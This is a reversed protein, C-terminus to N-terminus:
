PTDCYRQEVPSVIKLTKKPNQRANKTHLSGNEYLLFKNREFQKKKKKSFIGPSLQYVAIKIWGRNWKLPSLLPQYFFLSYLLWKELWIKWSIVSLIHFIIQLFKNHAFVKSFIKKLEIELIVRGTLRKQIKGLALSATRATSHKFSSYGTISNRKLIFSTNKWFSRVCWTPLPRPIM